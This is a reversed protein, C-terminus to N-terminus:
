VRIIVVGAEILTRVAMAFGVLIIVLSSVVPLARLLRGQGTFRDMLPRAKVMLVGIAILVAALGLSFSVILLLGLALRQLAVALLLIVLAGPCPVIGGSIGLALLGGMTVAGAPVHSHGHAQAHGAAHVPEDGHDHDGAHSHEDGHEHSHGRDSALESTHAHGHDHDHSHGHPHSHGAKGRVARVFLWGGLGMILLGSSAGLWPFIQEPLVYRSAFLTVVGLILV